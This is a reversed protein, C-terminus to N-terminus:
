DGAVAALGPVEKTVGNRMEQKRAASAILAKMGAQGADYAAHMSAYRTGSVHIPTTGAGHIEWAFPTAGVGARRVFVNIFIADIKTMSIEPENNICAPMAAHGM